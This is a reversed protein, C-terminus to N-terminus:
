PKGEQASVNVLVLKPSKGPAAEIVTVSANGINLEEWEAVPLGQLAGVLGAIVEGHSVLAVAQGGRERALSGLLDTLRAALQQLSEGGSPQPDRGAKWEAEREDWGLPQGTTSHGLELSRLRPEVAAARTAFAKQFIAGTERARGAPSTLVLRIGQNRLLAAARDTQSRGLATLHDLEEPALAPKPSLNSLAQGHRVLFVRATDAPVPGLTALPGPNVTPSAFAAVLLLVALM